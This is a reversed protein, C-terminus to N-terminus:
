RINSVVTSHYNPESTKSFDTNAKYVTPQTWPSVASTWYTWCFRFHSSHECPFPPHLELLTKKKKKIILLWCSHQTHVFLQSDQLEWGKFISSNCFGWCGYTEPSYHCLMTTSLYLPLPGSVECRCLLLSPEFPILSKLHPEFLSLSVLPWVCSTNRLPVDGALSWELWTTRGLLEDLKSSM